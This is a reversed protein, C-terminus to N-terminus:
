FEGYIRNRKSSITKKKEAVPISFLQFSTLHPSQNGFYRLLSNLLNSKGHPEIIKSTKPLTNSTKRLQKHSRIRHERIMEESWSVFGCSFKMVFILYKHRHVPLDSIVHELMLIM